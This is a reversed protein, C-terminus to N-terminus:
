FDKERLFYLKNPDQTVAELFQAKTRANISGSLSVYFSDDKYGGIGIRRGYFVPDPLEAENFNFTGEMKAHFPFTVEITKEWPLTCNTETVSQGDADIYTVDIKFCPSMTLEEGNLNVYTNAVMYVVKYTTSSPNPNPDPNKKCGTLMMGGILLTALLFM